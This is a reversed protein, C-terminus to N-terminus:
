EVYKKAKQPSALAESYTIPLVKVETVRADPLLSEMIVARKPVVPLKAYEAYTWKTFRTNKGISGRRDLLWGNGLEVPTSNERIDTPDPYAVLKTGDDSVIVPVYDNYDGNTKYAVAKPLAKAPKGMGIAVAPLDTAVAEKNSKCAAFLTAIMMITLLKRLM